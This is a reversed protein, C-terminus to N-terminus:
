IGLIRDLKMVTFRNRFYHSVDQALAVEADDLGLAAPNIAGGVQRLWDALEQAPPVSATIQQIEAWHDVIKQKLLGYTQETLDLFPAQEAIIRDAIPGYAERIRQIELAREPLM